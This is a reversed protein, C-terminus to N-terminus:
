NVREQPLSSKLKGLAARGNEGILDAISSRLDAGERFYNAIQDTAIEPHKEFFGIDNRIAAIEDTTLEKMQDMRTIGYAELVRQVSRPKDKFDGLPKPRMTPPLDYATMNRPM